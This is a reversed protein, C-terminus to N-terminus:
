VTGAGGEPHQAHHEAQDQPQHAAQQEALLQEAVVWLAVGNSAKVLVVDGAAVNERVWALAEDRGATVIAEGRWPPDASRLGDAIGVAPEGVVVVVDIGLAAAARGVEAHGAHASAGLERM